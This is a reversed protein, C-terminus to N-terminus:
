DRRHGVDGVHHIQLLTGRQRVTDRLADHASLSAHAEAVRKFWCAYVDLESPIDITHTQQTPLMQPVTFEQTYTPLSRFM